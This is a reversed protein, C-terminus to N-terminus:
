KSATNTIDINDSPTYLILKTTTHITLEAATWEIRNHNFYMQSKQQPFPTIQWIPKVRYIPCLHLHYQCSWCFYQRSSKELSKDTCYRRMMVSVLCLLTMLLKTKNGWKRYVLEPLQINSFFWVKKKKKFIVWHNQFWNKAAKTKRVDKCICIVM